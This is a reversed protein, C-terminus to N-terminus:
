PRLPLSSCVANTSTNEPQSTPLPVRPAAKQSPMMQGVSSIQATHREEQKCIGLITCYRCFLHSTSQPLCRKCSQRQSKHTLTRPLATKPMNSVGKETCKSISEIVTGDVCQLRRKALQALKGAGSLRQHSPLNFKRPASLAGV